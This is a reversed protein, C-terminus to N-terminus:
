SRDGSAPRAAVTGGAGARTSQLTNWVEIDSVLGNRGMVSINLQPSSPYGRGNSDCTLSPANVNPLQHATGLCVFGISTLRRGAEDIRSGRPLLSLAEARLAAFDEGKLADGYRYEFIASEVKSSSFTTAAVATGTVILLLISELKM